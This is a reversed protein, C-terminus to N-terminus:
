EYARRNTRIDVIEKNYIDDAVVVVVAVVVVINVVDVVNIILSVFFIENRIVFGGSLLIVVYYEYNLFNLSSILFIFHEQFFFDKKKQNKWFNYRFEYIFQIFWSNNDVMWAPRMTVYSPCENQLKKNKEERMATWKISCPQLTTVM